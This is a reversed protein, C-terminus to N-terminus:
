VSLGNQLIFTATKQLEEWSGYLKTHLHVATPWVNTRATQLLPCRQLKHEATQDELGYRLALSPQKVASTPMKAAYIQGDPRWSRVKISPWTTKSFHAIVDNWPSRPLPPGLPGVPGFPAGTLIHLSASATKSGKKPRLVDYSTGPSTWDIYKKIVRWLAIWSVVLTRRRKEKKRCLFM